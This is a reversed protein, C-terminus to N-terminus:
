CAEDICGVNGHDRCDEYEPNYWCQVGIPAAFSQLTFGGVMTVILFIAFLKKKM